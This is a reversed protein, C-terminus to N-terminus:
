KECSEIEQQEHQVDISRHEACREIETIDELSKKEKNSGVECEKKDIILREFKSLQAHDSNITLLKGARIAYM